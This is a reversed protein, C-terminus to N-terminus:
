RDSEAALAAILDDCLWLGAGQLQRLADEVRDFRQAQCPHLGVRFLTILPSADIVVRDIPM